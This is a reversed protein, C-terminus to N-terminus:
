HMRGPPREAFSRIGESELARRFEAYAEIDTVFQEEWVTSAGDHDVIELFWADDTDALRYIEVRVTIGDRTVDGSLPSQELEPDEDEDAM